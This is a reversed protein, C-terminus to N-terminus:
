FNSEFINKTFDKVYLLHKAHFSSILIMRSLNPILMTKTGDVCEAPGETRKVSKEPCTGQKRCLVLADWNESKEQRIFEM